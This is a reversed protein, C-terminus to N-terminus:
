CVWLFVPRITFSNPRGQRHTLGLATVKCKEAIEALLQGFTSSQRKQRDETHELARKLFVERHLISCLFSLQAPFTELKGKQCIAAADDFHIGTFGCPESTQNMSPSM